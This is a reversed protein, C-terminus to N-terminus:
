EDERYRYHDHNAPKLFYGERINLHVQSIYSRHLARVNCHKIAVSQSSTTARLHMCQTNGCGILKLIQARGYLYKYAPLAKPVLSWSPARLNAPQNIFAVASVVHGM